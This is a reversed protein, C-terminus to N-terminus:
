EYPKKEYGLAMMVEDASHNELISDLQDDSFTPIKVRVVDNFNSMGKGGIVLTIRKHVGGLPSKLACFFVPARRRKIRDIGVVWQTCGSGSEILNYFQKFLFATLCIKNNM